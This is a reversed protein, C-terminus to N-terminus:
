EDVNKIKNIEIVCFLQRNRESSVEMTLNKLYKQMFNILISLIIWKAAEYKWLLSCISKNEGKHMNFMLEIIQKSLRRVDDNLTSETKWIRSKSINGIHLLCTLYKLFNFENFCQTIQIITKLSFHALLEVICCMKYWLIRIIWM